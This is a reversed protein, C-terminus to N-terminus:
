VADRWATAFEEDTVAEELWETKGLSVVSYVVFSDPGAGHWHVEGAPAFVVDGAQMARCEGDRTAVMGRGASVLFLQGVTHSHWKTRAGPAFTAINVGIGDSTLLNDLWVTGTIVPLDTSTAQGARGRQFEM